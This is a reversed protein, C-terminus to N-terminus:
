RKNLHILEMLHLEAVNNLKNEKDEVGKLSDNASLTCSAGKRAYTLCWTSDLGLVVRRM